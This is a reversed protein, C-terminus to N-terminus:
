RDTLQDGGSVSDGATQSRDSPGHTRRRVKTQRVNAAQPSKQGQMTDFEARQNDELTKTVVVVPELLLRAESAPM